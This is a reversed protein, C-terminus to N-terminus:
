EKPVVTTLGLILWMQMGGRYYHLKSAPYGISRLGRIARPSQDCWPGNCFLLLEKAESFDFLENEEEDPVDGGFFGMVRSLSGSFAGEEQKKKVGLSSLVEWLDPNNPDADAFVIFPINVSTPITGRRYWSPTRADVILGTGKMYKKQMFDLVELEGVTAVGPAAEIAHICFPPCPRSTKAFGGTLEHETDQIRQIRVKEGHYPVDLYPLFETLNVELAHGPAAILTLAIAPWGAATPHFSLAM